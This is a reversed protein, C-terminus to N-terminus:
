YIRQHSTSGKSCFGVHPMFFFRWQQCNFDLEVPPVVTLPAQKQRLFLCQQVYFNFFVDCFLGLQALGSPSHRSPLTWNHTAKVIPGPPFFCIHAGCTEVKVLHVHRPSEFDWLECMNPSFSICFIPFWLMVSFNGNNTEICHCEYRYPLTCHLEKLMYKFSIRKLDRWVSIHTDWIKLTYHVMKDSCFQNSLEASNANIM